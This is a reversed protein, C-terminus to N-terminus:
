TPIEGVQLAMVRVPTPVGDICAITSFCQPIDGHIYQRVVCYKEDKRTNSDITAIRLYKGTLWDAEAGDGPITEGSKIEPPEVTCDIWVFFEETEEPVVFDIDPDFELHPMESPDNPDKDAGDTGSVKTQGLNGARVRFTRWGTGDEAEPDEPSAMIKFAFPNTEYEYGRSRLADVQRQLLQVANALANLQESIANNRKWAKGIADPDRKSRQSSTEHFVVGPLRKLPNAM